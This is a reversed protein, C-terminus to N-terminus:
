RCVDMMRGYQVWSVAFAVFGSVFFMGMGIVNAIHGRKWSHDSNRNAVAAQTTLKMGLAGISVWLFAGSLDFSAHNM